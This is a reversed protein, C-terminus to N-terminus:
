AMSPVRLFRIQFDIGVAPQYAAGPLDYRGVMVRPGRSYLGIQDDHVADTQRGPFVATGPDVPQEGVGKGRINMGIEGFYSRQADGRMQDHRAVACDCLVHWESPAGPVRALRNIPAPFGAVIERHPHLEFPGIRLRVLVRLVAGQGFQGGRQAPGIRSQRRIADDAVAINVRGDIKRGMFRIEGASLPTLGALARLITSKGSGNAGIISVIDGEAVNLSVEHVSLSKGYHVTIRDIELLM